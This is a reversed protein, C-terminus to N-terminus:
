KESSHGSRPFQHKHFKPSSYRGAEKLLGIQNFSFFLLKKSSLELATSFFSHAFEPSKCREFNFCTIISLRIRPLIDLYCKTVIKTIM